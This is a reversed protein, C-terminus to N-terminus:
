YCQHSKQDTLILRGGLRRAQGNVDPRAGGSRPLKSVSSGSLPVQKRVCKYVYILIIYIFWINIYIIYIYICDDFLFHVLIHSDRTFHHYTSATRDKEPTVMRDFRSFGLHGLHYLRTKPHKAM